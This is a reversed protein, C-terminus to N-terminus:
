DHRLAVQADIRSARRAPIYLAMTAVGVLVLPALMFTALTMSGSGYLVGRIVVFAGAACAIGIACGLLVQRLGQGMVRKVVAGTTSGLAMRIGIERTQQGVTHAMVGYMGIAALLLGIVGFLGLAGGAIRAPLLAMGLHSTLTQLDVIPMQPDLAAVEARITAIMASPVNRSRVVVRMASNWRQQQPFYMFPRAEEGLSIYKGTPVVGVITHDMGGRKVTRGVADQGPWFRDVFRQNVIMQPPATSDDRATFDRGAVLTIGMAALYGPTMSAYHVSMLEGEAPTYGPIVVGGDSSGLGLPLDNIMGVATVGPTQRLRELLTAYFQETRPRDYGQLQPDLAATVADDVTFGVDLTTATRLNSVFLGSGTLLIISLAMQAVILGQRVRSRSEGAPEEGKLAPVLSPRTAQLAPALGFLLGALVTVGFTFALVTGNLQLDPRIGVDMPLSIQNLLGIGVVAVVIGAAGALLSFVLSEVLLQRLLQGRTAGIALRVAMERARDRARALFLNSVNVCAVLLLIGVVGMIVASLGVQATRMTPHIGADAQRIVEIGSKAYNDPYSATLEANIAALRDRAQGPTVGDKLRAIVNLFNNGRSEFSGAREPQIEALQMLPVFAVPDVIPLGGRFGPPTVGVIEMSRGNLVITRGIVNPDAAFAGRWGGDSLVVVPHAGRGVDEDPRFLRGLAPQVGLTSFLNASVIQGMFKQPRDGATISLPAFAWSAVGDFVDTTRERVAEYHPISNSGWTM